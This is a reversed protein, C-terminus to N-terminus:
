ATGTVPPGLQVERWTAGGLAHITPTGAPVCVWLSAHLATAFAVNGVPGARRIQLRLDGIEANAPLAETSQEVPRLNIQADNITVGGTYDGAWNITLGDRPDHVLARRHAGAHGSRRAPSDLMIDSGTHKLYVGEVIVWNGDVEDLRIDTPM